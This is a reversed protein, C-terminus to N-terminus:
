CGTKRAWIISEFGYFEWTGMLVAGRLFAIPELLMGVYRLLFPRYNPASFIIEFGSFNLEDILKNFEPPVDKHTSDDFYNLTGIQRKPFSVSKESPFALYIAGGMKIADLMARLTSDRDDCHELNHASIVADFENEFKGIESAFDKASTIIYAGDPDLESLNYYGVDIGTYKCKPVTQRIKTPSNNGCGVDLIRPEAGLTALFAARGHPRLFRAIKQKLVM